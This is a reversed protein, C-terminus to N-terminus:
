IEFEGEIEDGFVKGSGLTLGLGQVQRKAMAFTLMGEIKVDRIRRLITLVIEDTQAAVPVVFLRGAELEDIRLIRLFGPRLPPCTHGTDTVGTTVLTLNDVAPRARPLIVLMGAM